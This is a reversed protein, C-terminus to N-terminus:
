RDSASIYMGNEAVDRCIAAKESQHAQTGAIRQTPALLDADKDM